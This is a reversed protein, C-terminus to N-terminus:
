SGIMPVHLAQSPPPPYLARLRPRVSPLNIRVCWARASDLTSRERVTAPVPISSNSLDVSTISQLLKGPFAHTGKSMSAACLGSHTVDRYYHTVHAFSAPFARRKMWTHRTPAGHTDTVIVLTHMRGLAQEGHSRGGLLARAENSGRPIPSKYGGTWRVNRASFSSTLSRGAIRPGQVLFKGM